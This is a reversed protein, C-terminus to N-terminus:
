LWEYPGNPHIKKTSPNLDLSQKKYYAAYEQFLLFLKETWLLIYIAGLSICVLIYNILM